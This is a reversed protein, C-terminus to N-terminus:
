GHNAAEEPTKGRDEPRFGWSRARELFFRDRSM